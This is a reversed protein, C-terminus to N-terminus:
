VLYTLCDLRKAVAMNHSFQIGSSRRRNLYAHRIRNSMKNNSHHATLHLGLFSCWFSMPKISTPSRAWTKNVMRCEITLMIPPAVYSFRRTSLSQFIWTFESFLSSIASALRKPDTVYDDRVLEKSWMRCSTPTFSSTDTLAGSVRPTHWWWCAVINKTSRRYIQSQPQQLASISALKCMGQTISPWESLRVSHPSVLSTHRRVENANKLERMMKHDYKFNSYINDFKAVRAKPTAIVCPMKWIHLILLVVRKWEIFSLGACKGEFRDNCGQVRSSPFLFVLLEIDLKGSPIQNFKQLNHCLFYRISQALSELYAETNTFRQLFSLSILSRINDSPLYLSNCTIRLVGYSKGANSWALFQSPQLFNHNREITM